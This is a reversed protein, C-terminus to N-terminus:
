RIASEAIPNHSRRRPREIVLLNADYTLTPKLFALNTNVVSNFTTGGIGGFFAGSVVANVGTSWLVNIKVHGSLNWVLYVGNQFSNLTRSDLLTVDCAKADLADVLSRDIWEPARGSGAAPGSVFSLADPARYPQKKRAIIEPPVLAAAVRKLVHKEDLVRLKAADPLSHALDVVDPDLFPFRGKMYAAMPGARVPDGAAVLAAHAEAVLREPLPPDSGIM